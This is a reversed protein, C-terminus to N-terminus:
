MYQSNYIISWHVHPYLYRKSIGIENDEAIYGSTPNSSWITTRNKIKQPVKISNEMNARGIQMGELLACTKGKGWM